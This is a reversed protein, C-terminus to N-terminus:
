AENKEREKTERRIIGWHYLYMPLGVLIFAIAGSADQQRQQNRYDIQQKGEGEQWKKYDQMWSDLQTKQAETLECKDQCKQVASILDEETVEQGNPKVAIVPTSPRLGYNIQQDAQTFIFMKLGLNALRVAGISVLVLGIITFLYLYIARVLPNKM